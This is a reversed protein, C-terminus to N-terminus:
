VSMVFPQRSEHKSNEFVHCSRIRTLKTKRRHICRAVLRPVAVMARTQVTGSQRLAQARCTHRTTMIHRNLQGVTFRPRQQQKRRRVAIKGQYAHIRVQRGGLARRTIGFDFRNGVRGNRTENVLFVDLIKNLMSAQDDIPFRRANM